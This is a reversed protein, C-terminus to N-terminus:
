FKDGKFMKAQRCLRGALSASTLALGRGVLRSVCVDDPLPPDKHVSKNQRITKVKCSQHHELRVWGPYGYRKSLDPMDEPLIHTHVDIRMRPARASAAKPHKKSDVDNQPVTGSAKTAESKEIRALLAAHQYGGTLRETEGSGAGRELLALVSVRVVCF